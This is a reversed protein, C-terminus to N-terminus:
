LKPTLRLDDVWIRGRILPKSPSRAIRVLLLDPEPGTTFEGDFERWGTSGQVGDTLMYPPNSHKVGVISFRPPSTTEVNDSMMFGSFRYKTNARAPVLQFAGSDEPAGDFAISLSRNGSHARTVDINVAAGPRGSYRWDLGGYLLDLEFGGNVILSESSLYPLFGPTPTALQSWAAAAEAFQGRSILYELYPFALQPSFPVRLSILHSWVEAAAEPQSRYILFRIFEFHVEPRAPLVREAILKADSTARWCVNMVAPVFEADQEVLTHFRRLAASTDGRVLEYNGAQWIVEPTTPDAELARTLAQRQSEMNGTALYASSLDLWYRADYPNLKIAQRFQDIAPSFDQVVLSYRGLRYRFEANLPELQGAKNLNEVSSEEAYRVARYVRSAANFYAAIAAVAV